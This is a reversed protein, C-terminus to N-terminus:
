ILVSVPWIRIKLCGEHKENGWIQWKVNVISWARLIEKDYCYLSTVRRTMSICKLQFRRSWLFTSKYELWEMAQTCKHVPLRVCICVCVHVSVCVCVKECLTSEATRNLLSTGTNPHPHGREVGGKWQTKYNPLCARKAPAFGAPSTSLLHFARFTVGKM